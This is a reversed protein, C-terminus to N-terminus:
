TPPDCSPLGGRKIRSAALEDDHEMGYQLLCTRLSKGKSSSRFDDSVYLNGHWMWNMEWRFPEDAELVDDAGGAKYRHASRAPICPYLVTTKRFRHFQRAAYSCPPHILDTLEDLSKSRGLSTRNAISLTLLESRDCGTCCRLLSHNSRTTPM